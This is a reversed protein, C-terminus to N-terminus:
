GQREYERKGPSDSIRGRRLQSDLRELQWLAFQRRLLKQEETLQSYVDFYRKREQTTM